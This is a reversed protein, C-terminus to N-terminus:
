DKLDSPNILGQSVAEKLLAHYANIRTLSIYPLLWLYGIGCSLASLIGWGLFSLDQIFLDAKHGRTIIQSIKMSKTVSLEPYELLLYEMQSYSYCKVLGPILFLISWILIWISKWFGCIVAKVWLSLGDTFDEISVAEPGHTMKIHVNTMAFLLVFEVIIALWSVISDLIGISSEPQSLGMSLARLGNETSSYLIKANKLDQFMGKLEPLNMISLILFIILSILVPITWRNKLQMRAYKKYKRRDFM